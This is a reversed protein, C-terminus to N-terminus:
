WTFTAPQALAAVATAAVVFPLMASLVQSSDTGDAESIVQQKNGFSLLSVNGERKQLGVRGIFFSTSCARASLGGNGLARRRGRRRVSASVSCSCSPSCSAAAAASASPPPPPPSASNPRASHPISARIWPPAASPAPSLVPVLAAMPSRLPLRLWRRPPQKRRPKSPPLPSSTTTTTSLVRIPSISQTAIIIQKFM